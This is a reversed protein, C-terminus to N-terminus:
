LESFLRGTKLLYKKKVALHRTRKNLFKGSLTTVPFDDFARIESIVFPMSELLKKGEEDTFIYKEALKVPTAEDLNASPIVEQRLFSIMRENVGLVVMPADNLQHKNMYLAAESEAQYKLLAPYFSRNIYYNVVLIAIAPIFIIKHFRRGDRIYILSIVALGAFFVILVDLSPLDNSFIFHIIIIALLLLGASGIQIASFVKLFKVKRAFQYLVDATLIALFPFIANLYHPLQFRSLSFIIFM